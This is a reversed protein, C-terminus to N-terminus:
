SILNSPKTFHFTVNPLRTDLMRGEQMINMGTRVNIMKKETEGTQRGRATIRWKRWRAFRWGCMYERRCRKGRDLM